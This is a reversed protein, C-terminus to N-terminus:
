TWHKPEDDLTSGKAANEGLLLALRPKIKPYLSVSRAARETAIKQEREALATAAGSHDDHLSNDVIREAKLDSFKDNVTVNSFPIRLEVECNPCHIVDGGSAKSCAVHQGCAPCSFKLESM